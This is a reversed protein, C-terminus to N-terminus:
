SIRAADGGRVARPSPAFLLDDGEISLEAEPYVAKVLPLTELVKARIKRKQAYGFDIREFFHDWSIRMPAALDPLIGALWIYVDLAWSNDGIQRVAVLDLAIPRATVHDYFARDLMVKTPFPGSPWTAAELGSASPADAYEHGEVFARVGGAAEADGDAPAIRLRCSGIRRAQEGIHRYTMGGPGVGMANMWARMSAQVEVSPSGGRVAGDVLHLLIIRAKAGYPVGIPAADRGSASELTYVYAGLRRRWAGASPGPDRHPLCTIAAHGYVTVAPAARGAVVAAAADICARENANLAARRAGELGLRRIADHADFMQVARGLM